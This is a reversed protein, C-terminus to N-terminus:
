QTRPMSSAGTSDSRLLPAFPPGLMRRVFCFVFAAEVVGRFRLARAGDALARCFRDAADAPLRTDRDADVLTPFIDEALLCFARAADAFCCALCEADALVGFVFFVFGLAPDAAAFRVRRVGSGARPVDRARVDAPAEAVRGYM